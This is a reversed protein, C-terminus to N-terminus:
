VAAAGCLLVLHGVQLLTCMDEVNAMTGVGHNRMYWESLKEMVATKLAEMNEPAEGAEDMADQSVGRTNNTRLSHGAFDNVPGCRRPLSVKPTSRSRSASPSLSCRVYNSTNVRGSLFLHIRSVHRTPKVGRRFSGAHVFRSFIAPVQVGPSSVFELTDAVAACVGKRGQEVSM